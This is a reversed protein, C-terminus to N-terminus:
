RVAAGVGYLGHLLHKM